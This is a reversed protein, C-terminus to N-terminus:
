LKKFPLDQQQAVPADPREMREYDIGMQKSLIDYNLVVASTQKEKAEMVRMMAMNPKSQGTAPVTVFGGVPVEKPEQWKFRTNSVQGIYAPSSNLNV